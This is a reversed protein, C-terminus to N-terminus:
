TCGSPCGSQGANRNLLPSGRLLQRHKSLGRPRPEQDVPVGDPEAGGIAEQLLGGASSALVYNKFNLDRETQICVRHAMQEVRPDEIWRLYNATTAKTRNPDKPKSEVWVEMARIDLKKELVKSGGASKVKLFIDGEEKLLGEYIQDDRVISSYKQVLLNEDTLVFSKLNDAKIKGLLKIEELM